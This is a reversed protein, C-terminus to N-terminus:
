TRLISRLKDLSLWPRASHIMRHCNACLLALDQLRTKSGAVLTHLPKTHHCEIFGRGREGYVRAFDFGCAECKLAGHKQLAKAKRRQVLKRSRERQTHLRTLLQGEVAEPLEEAALSTPSKYNPADSIASYIAGAVQRLKPPDGAFDNWVLEDGRGGRRLGVRGRVTYHPDLRKFNSLKMYVGNPNRFKEDASQGLQRGLRNLLSSLEIVEPSTQGPVAYRSRMYLDLALILEDRTWPPNRVERGGAMMREGIRDTPDGVAASGFVMHNCPNAGM